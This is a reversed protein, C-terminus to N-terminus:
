REVGCYELALAGYLLAAKKLDGTSISEHASHALTLDGPGMVVCKTKTYGSLIGADSWAPFAILDKKKCGISDMACHISHILPDEPDTCFPRHPILEGPTFIGLVEARFKPDQKQLTEIIERLEKYVQDLSEEPIWRRDIEITCTGPVTSPQDGGNIKGINITPHGLIPHIRRNLKPVYYAYIYEILKSAMLIANIGRDMKGGHVKKGYVIIKIWELGKHGIAIQMGTPEGIVAAQTHPGNNALYEVGKGREEEDIVGTFYLDGELRIGSRHIGIIAAIMSALPGKMDCSGRGYLKGGEVRGSFPNELDYPPVTDLHGSLMLSKGSGTGRLWATVNFRGPEVETKSVPIGEEYFLDEIYAAMEKEQNEMFSFSPIKVMDSAMNVVDVNNINDLVTVHEKM